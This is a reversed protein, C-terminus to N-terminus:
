GDVLRQRIAAKLEDTLLPKYLVPVQGGDVLRRARESVAGGTYLIFREALAPRSKSIAEILEAADMDPMMIDSVIVDFSPAKDVLALAGRGHAATVVDFEDALLVSYVERISPEDDVLLVRPRRSAPAPPPPPTPLRPETHPAAPFRVEFRTGRGLDSKCVIDGAHARAIELCISLGIGVGVGHPKTTFFPEFLRKQQERTMGPGTDEVAIIVQEDRVETSITVCNDQPPADPIAQAANVLLNTLIQDLRGRPLAVPPVAVLHKVLRAKHRVVNSVLNCVDNIVDNPYVIGVKGPELRSFARLDQVVSCIRDVGAANQELLRQIEAVASRARDLPAALISPNEVPSDLARTAEDLASQARALEGELLGASAQVYTAPNSIEHAVGAALRGVAALRDAQLLQRKLQEGQAREIAYRMARVLTDVNFRGKVLYDQAGERVMQVAQQEDSDGTLVVIPLGPLHRQVSRISEVGEGDPLCLDLLVVDPNPELIAALDALKELHTLTITETKVELLLLRLAEAFIESDEVLLAHMM